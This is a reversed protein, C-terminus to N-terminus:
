LLRTRALRKANSVAKRHLPAIGKAAIKDAASAFSPMQGTMLSVAWVQQLRFMEFTMAVWSQSFALQKEMVMGTFEKRDRASLVPGAMAMRTLRHAMVQPVAVGLQALKTTNSASQRKAPTKRSTAM